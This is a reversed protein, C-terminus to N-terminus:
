EPLSSRLSLNHFMRSVDEPRAPTSTRPSPVTNIDRRLTLATPSGHRPFLPPSDLNPTQNFLYDVGQRFAHRIPGFEAREPGSSIVKNRRLWDSLFLYKQSALAQVKPHDKDYVQGTKQLETLAELTCRDELLSHAFLDQRRRPDQVLNI